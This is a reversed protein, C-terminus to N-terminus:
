TAILCENTVFGYLGSAGEVLIIRAKVKKLKWVPM